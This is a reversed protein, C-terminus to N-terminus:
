TLDLKQQLSVISISRNCLYSTALLMLYKDMRNEVSAVMAAFRKLNDFSRMMCLNKALEPHLELVETSVYCKFSVIKCAKSYGSRVYLYGELDNGHAHLDVEITKTGGYKSADNCFEVELTIPFKM